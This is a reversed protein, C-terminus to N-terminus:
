GGITARRNNNARRNRSIANNIIRNENKIAAGLKGSKRHAFGLLNQIDADKRAAAEAEKLKVIAQDYNKDKILALAKNYAAPKASTPAYDDSGAAFAQAGLLSMMIIAGISFFKRAM